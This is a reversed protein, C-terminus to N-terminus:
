TLLFFLHWAEVPGDCANEDDAQAGQTHRNRGRLGLQNCRVPDFGGQLRLKRALKETRKKVPGVDPGRKLPAAHTGVLLSDAAAIADRGAIVAHLSWRM